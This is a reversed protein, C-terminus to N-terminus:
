LYAHEDASCRNVVGVQENRHLMCEDPLYGTTLPNGVEPNHEADFRRRIENKTVTKRDTVEVLRAYCTGNRVTSASVALRIDPTSSSVPPDLQHFLADFLPRRQAFSAPDALPVLSVPTDM